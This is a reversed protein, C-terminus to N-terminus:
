QGLRGRLSDIATVAWAHHMGDDHGNNIDYGLMACIHWRVQELKESAYGDDEVLESELDRVLITTAAFLAARDFDSSASRAIAIHHDLMDIALKISNM